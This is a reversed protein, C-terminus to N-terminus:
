NFNACYYRLFIQNYTQPKYTVAVGCLIKLGPTLMVKTGGGQVGVVTYNKLYAIPDWFWKWNAYGKNRHM